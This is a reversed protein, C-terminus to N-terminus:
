SSKVREQNRVADIFARIKAPDKVGPASEVGSSVDVAGAGSAAIAAGVTEPTLGGSLIWPRTWTQGSLLTWDFSEANGGPRDAEAPAKADFLLMDAVEEYRHARDIDAPGAISVAKIVPRGFHAKVTLVRGPAEHGHLQIYDVPASEIVEALLRDDPDVFVGVRDVHGAAQHALGAAKDLTLSRPSKDFFVFGVMAAGAAIAADLAERDTIGCIKVRPTM